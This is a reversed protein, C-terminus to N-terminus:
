QGVRPTEGHEFRASFAAEYAAALRRTEGAYGKDGHWSKPCKGAERCAMRDARAEFQFDVAGCHECECWLYGNDGCPIDLIASGTRVGTVGNSLPPTVVGTVGNPVM